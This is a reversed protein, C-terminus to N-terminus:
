NEGRSDRRTVQTPLLAEAIGNKLGTPNSAGPSVLVLLTELRHLRVAPDVRIEQFADPGPNVEAVVGVTVGKPYIGDLGSAVIRDGVRVDELNPVYRLRCAERGSGVMVGQVRSREDLVGVGSAVDALLQVVSSREGLKLVRGVLGDPSLVAADKHVGDRNGVDIVISRLPGSADSAIVRAARSGVASKQRMGLLAQLRQSERGAEALEGKELELEAVRAELAAVRAHLHERRLVESVANAVRGSLSSAMYLPRELAAYLLAEGPSVRGSRSRYASTGLLVLLFVLLLGARLRRSPERHM